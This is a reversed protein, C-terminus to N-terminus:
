AEGNAQLMEQEEFSPQRSAQARSPVIEVLREGSEADLRAGNRPGEGNEHENARERAPPAIADVESLEVAVFRSVGKIEMTVGYLAQCSAMTGKNHTVVIFQTSKRFDDLMGLFREINADDLAADVEDLVCFPSPRAQFVAFLLALATMTRQGGSLLSIPLMERGPPRASIEIGAELVDVGEELSIEAKGGGFLQRFIRQFHEGVEQFTELFLRRSEEDIKAITEALSARARVLDGAQAELRELRTAVEALEDVAEMNVPGTKELQNRLESTRADLAELAGHLELEAEPELSASLVERAMALEEQARRVLEELALELRQLEMRADSLESARQDCSRQVGEMRVRVGELHERGARESTRLAELSSEVSARSSAMEEGSVALAISEARGREASTAHEQARRSAREIEAEHEQIRRALDQARREHASLESRLRTTEIQARGEERALRERDEELSRRVAEMENLRENEARFREEATARESGAAALERALADVESRAQECELVALHRSLELDTVRARATALRSEAVSLERANGDRASAVEALEARLIERSEVIGDISRDLVTIAETRRGAERDLDAASSRRGIPGQTVERHGGIVGAADVLEGAPTVYRWCPYLQVLELAHDLSEVVMVDGLLARALPECGRACRVSDYLRGLIGAGCEPIPRMGRQTFASPLVVGVQGKRQATLWDLIARPTAVDLAVLATAREALVVDLARALHSDTRLADAVLGLLQEATCPGTGAEVAELVARTGASLDAHEAERDTLTEVRSLLRARELELSSREARASELNREVEAMDASARARQEEIEALLARSREREVEAEAAEGRVALLGVDLDALRARSREERESAPAQSDLLHRERNQAATRGHLCGLVVENQQQVATRVDRYRRNLERLESALRSASSETSELARRLEVIEAALTTAEASTAAVQVGLEGARETEERASQEWSEIRLALQARREEIARVEGAIRAAEASLRDLEGVLRGREEERTRMDEECIARETRLEELAAELEGARPGLAVLEADLRAFRHRLLRTRERTWEGKLEVWREAKGAQIKLSRVRTRLEGMVDELRLVDQEVRKLRLETEHRRQRYRSIGAAEEFITRRQLPNASLVADIRGQELVSYGRSGLGTDYLMDRVDKLRVKEADIRYESEGSRYLRRQIAVEPGRGELTSEENDLVLTVEAMGLPPRSASGKFIVDIMGEGRMSTPRMEGLVWRVSDVVNSKGCGNPGVIGTLTHDAFDLVVRDAFSKFGFLELRKLRM